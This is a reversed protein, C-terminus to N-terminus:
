DKEGRGSAADTQRSSALARLGDTVHFKVSGAGKRKRAGAASARVTQAHGDQRFM